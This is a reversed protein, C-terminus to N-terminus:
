PFCQERYNSVGKLTVYPSWQRRYLGQPLYFSGQEKYMISSVAGSLTNPNHCLYQFNQLIPILTIGQIFQAIFNHLLVEVAKLHCKNIVQDCNMANLFVLMRIQDTSM